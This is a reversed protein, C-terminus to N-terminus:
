KVAFAKERPQEQKRQKARQALLNQFQMFERAAAQQEPTMKALDAQSFYVRNFAKAGMQKMLSSARERLMAEQSAPSVDTVRLGTLVNAARAGIGKRDDTLQRATTLARALPSNAALFELPKSGPFTVADERGLVNAALRGVTPDMDDLDRGGM